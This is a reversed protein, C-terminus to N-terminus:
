SHSRLTLTVLYRPGDVPQIEACGDSRTYRQTACDRLAIWGAIELGRKIDLRGIRIRQHRPQLSPAFNGIAALLRQAQAAIDAHSRIADRDFGHFGFDIAARNLSPNDNRM